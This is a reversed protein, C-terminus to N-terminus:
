SHNMGFSAPPVAWDRLEMGSDMANSKWGRTGTQVIWRGGMDRPSLMGSGCGSGLQGKWATGGAVGTPGSPRLGADRGPIRSM